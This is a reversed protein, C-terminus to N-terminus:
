DNYHGEVWLRVTSFMNMKGDIIFDAYTDIEGEIDKAYETKCMKQISLELKLQSKFERRGMLFFVLNNECERCLFCVYNGHRCRHGQIVSCSECMIERRAQKNDEM